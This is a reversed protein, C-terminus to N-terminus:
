FPPEEAPATTTAEKLRESRNKGTSHAEGQNPDSFRQGEWPTWRLGIRPPADARCKTVKAEIYTADDTPRWLFMVGDSDDGISGSGKLDTTQPEPARKLTGDKNREQKRAENSMQALLLVAIGLERALQKLAHSAETFRDYESQGPRTSRLLGLYDVALLSLNPCIRRRARAWAVVDNVNATGSDKIAIRLPDLWAKVEEAVERQGSTLGGEKVTKRAIRLRRAIYIQGLETRGMEQSCIAVSGPGHAEATATLGHLLLSTKGCGTNAALTWLEGASITIAADMAEIGFLAGRSKVEGRAIADHADLASTASLYATAGASTQALCQNLLDDVAADVDKVGGPRRLRDVGKQMAALTERQRHHGAIIKCNRELGQVVSTVTALDSIANFGGCAVLASEDYSLGDDRRPLGKKASIGEAELLVRMLEGFSTAALTQTVAQADIRAGEAALMQCAVFVRRHLQEFFAMPSTVHRSLTDWADQHRGDLVVSLVAREVEVNHTHDPAEQEVTATV